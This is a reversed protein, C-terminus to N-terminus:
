QQKTVADKDLLGAAIAQAVTVEKTAGAVYVKGDKITASVGNTLTVPVGDEPIGAEQTPAQAVVGKAQTRAEDTIVAKGSEDLTLFSPTESSPAPM